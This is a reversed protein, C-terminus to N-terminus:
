IWKKKIEGSERKGEHQKIHQLHCGEVSIYSLFLDVLYTM